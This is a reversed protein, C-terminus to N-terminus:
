RDLVIRIPKQEQIPFDLTRAPAPSAPRPSATPRTKATSPRPASATSTRPASGTGSDKPQPAAVPPGPVYRPGGETRAETRGEPRDEGARSPAAPSRMASTAFEGRFLAADRYIFRTTRAGNAFDFFAQDEQILIEPRGCNGVDWILVDAGKISMVQTRNNCSRDTKELLLLTRGAVSDSSLLRVATANPIDVVRFWQQLKISYRGGLVRLRGESGDDLKFTAVTEGLLEANDIGISMKGGPGKQVACGALAVAMICLASFRTSLSNAFM